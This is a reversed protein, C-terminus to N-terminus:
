ELYGLQRLREAITREDEETLVDEEKETQCPPMGEQPGEEVTEKRAVTQFAPRLAALPPHGEMAAPVPLGLLHVALPAVDLLSMAEVQRGEALGPGLGVFIGEPRHAGVPEPRTHVATESALISILGGDWLSLTLDPALPGHPGPFAEERRWVREVMPRGTTPSKVEALGAIIEDELAKKEAFSTHQADQQGMPLVHIGNSSPTAAFARTKEWDMEFSHRAIRAMGLDDRDRAEPVQDAKWHLLGKDHLWQNVFFIDRSEGFGHDSVLLLHTDPEMRDVMWGLTRDIERYYELCATLIPNAHSTGQKSQLWSSLEAWCLHQVKDVGDFVVSVLETPREAMLYSLIKFWQTERQIQSEVFARTEERSCGEVAKAEHSMDSVLTKLEIGELKRIEEYLAQPHCALKFQRWTLWGGSIIAGQIKPPPFTVPFNLVTTKKGERNALPWLTEAQIHSSLTLRLHLTDPSEKQFFDFVGHHGPSRGTVMSTWAPPTLPPVISLLDSRVGRRLAKELNPM